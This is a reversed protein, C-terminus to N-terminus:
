REQTEMSYKSRLAATVHSLAIVTVQFQRPAFRHSGLPRQVSFLVTTGPIDSIMADIEERSKGLTSIDNISTIIDRPQMGVKAAPSDEFVAQIIPYGSGPIKMDLGVVGPEQPAMTRVSGNLMVAPQVGTAYVSDMFGGMLGMLLTIVGMTAGLPFQRHLLGAM